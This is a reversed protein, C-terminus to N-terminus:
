VRATSRTSYVGAFADNFLLRNLNLIYVYRQLIWELSILLVVVLAILSIGFYYVLLMWSPLTVRDKILFLHRATEYGPFYLILFVALPVHSVYRGTM